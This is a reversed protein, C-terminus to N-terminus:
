CNELHCTKLTGIDGFNNVELIYVYKNIDVFSTISNNGYDQVICMLM